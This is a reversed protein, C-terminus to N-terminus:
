APARALCVTCAKLCGARPHSPLPCPLRVVSSSPRAPPRLHALITTNPVGTGLGWTGKVFLHM